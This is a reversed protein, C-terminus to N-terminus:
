ASRHKMRKTFVPAEDNLRKQMEYKREASKESIDFSFLGERRRKRVECMEDTMLMESTSKRIPSSPM